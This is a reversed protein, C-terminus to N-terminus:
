GHAPREKLAQHTLNRLEPYHEQLVPPVKVPGSHLFAQLELANVTSKGINHNNTVAYTEQADEAIHKIRAVWPELEGPSYLYDYRERV